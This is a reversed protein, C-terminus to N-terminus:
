LGIAYRDWALLWASLELRRMDKRGGNERIRGDEDLLVPCHEPFTSPLFRCDCMYAMVLIVGDHIHM